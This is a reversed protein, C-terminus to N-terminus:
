PQKDPWNLHKRLFRFTGEGHIMHGGNFFEIETRDGIGLKDYLRRVAAYESAVWEDIGVGDDHGREVMFPRPAALGALEAYNFTHGLDFELMEYERTFMYSFAHDVDTIKRIWDNFDASCIALAYNELITPVRMATKGGYSIGYFGIRKSDVFPLGGLWELTRAHQGVIFSFLTLKLPNAKRQLVRFRDESVYPNQPAYVIFGCEALRAGFMAYAPAFEPEITKRPHGELGHQCVVVPRREGPRLDKPVLLIGQAFVDPWVDLMVEYGRWRPKDYVLRTRPNAPVNPDPLRGIVEQWFYRRYSECTSQWAQPSSPDAKSWFEKRRFEAQRVLKQTFDIMQQFQRKQRAQPDFSKRNDPMLPLDFNFPGTKEVRLAALFADLTEACGPPGDGNESLTLTIKGGAGLSDFMSKARDFEAQVEKVALSELRGPAAGTRGPKAPPPGTAIPAHSAEVILTRPAILWAFEADGFERLLSWVNRYIPESGIRERPGFYGSVVTADIRPDVAAAYLAILGGEGYGIVGVPKSADARSTFHDMAALVKQVEYGIVHRGMEYAMRYVYERHPQNTMRVAPNGSYADDRSILTPVLVECGQRALQRAFAASAPADAAIGALMEPTWDADPLAIVRAKPQSRPKLLLGEGDVGEFAPWRVALVTLAFDEAVQAPQTTTTLVELDAQTPRPDVVGIIQKLRTRRPAVAEIYSEISGPNTPWLSRRQRRANELERMLFRDIGAVMEVAPEPHGALRATGELPECARTSVIPGFTCAAALAIAGATPFSNRNWNM